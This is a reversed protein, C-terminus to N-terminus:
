KEAKLQRMFEAVKANEPERGAAEQLAHRAKDPEGIKIYSEALMLWAESDDMGQEICYELEKAAAAPDGGLM